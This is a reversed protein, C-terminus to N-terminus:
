LSEKREKICFAIIQANTAGGNLLDSLKIEFDSTVVRRGIDHGNFTSLTLYELADAERGVELVNNAKERVVYWKRIGDSRDRLQAYGHGDGRMILQRAHRRTDGSMVIM